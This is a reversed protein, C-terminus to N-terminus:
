IIFYFTKQLSHKLDTFLNDSFLFLFDKNFQFLLNVKRKSDLALNFLWFLRINSTLIIIQSQTYDRLAPAHNVAELNQKKKKLNECSENNNTYYPIYLIFHYLLFFFFGDNFNDQIYEDKKKLLM